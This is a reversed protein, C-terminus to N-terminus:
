RCKVRSHTKSFNIYKLTVLTSYPFVPLFCSQEWLHYDKLKGKNLDKGIIIFRMVLNILWPVVTHFVFIENWIHMEVKLREL